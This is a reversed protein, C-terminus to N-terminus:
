DDEVELRDILDLLDGVEIVNPNNVADRNCPKTYPRIDKKLRELKSMPKPPALLEAMKKRLEQAGIKPEVYKGPVIPEIWSCGYHKELADWARAKQDCFRIAEYGERDKDISVTRADKFEGLPDLIRDMLRNREENTMNCGPVIRPTEQPQGERKLAEIASRFAEIDYKDMFALDRGTEQNPDLRQSVLELRRVKEENTMESM